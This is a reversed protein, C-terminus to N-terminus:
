KKSSIKKKFETPSIGTEKKFARYFSSKSNFGSTFAVGLLSYKDYEQRQLKETVERVRCTNIYDYFSTNLSHNLYLSLNKDSTGVLEALGNLTLEQQLFPKDESMLAELKNKITEKEASSLISNPFREKDKGSVGQGAALFAPFRIVSQKLGQYGLYFTVVALFIVSIIGLDWEFAPKFLIYVVIVILDFLFVALFAMLLTRLWGHNDITFTSYNSKMLETYSLFLKLSFVIYLLVFLNKALAVYANRFWGVYEFVEEGYFNAVAKPLSIVIWYVVFPVFHFWRKRILNEDQNFISELYLYILPGILLGAGDEFLHTFGFLLDMGHLHAYLTLLTIASLGLLVMLIYKPLEKKKSMALMVVITATVVLGSVIIFDALLKM